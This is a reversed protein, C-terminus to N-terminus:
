NRLPKGTELTHKIRAQTLPNKLLGMFHRREIDLIWQEDVLSGGEVYGGCLTEALALGVAFDHASIFGGDRMNVLQSEITAIGSAGLVPFGRTKLPPRYGSDYMARANRKALWLVEHTNLAVVDGVRLFGLTRAEEASKSVTATAVTQFHAKLFDLIYANDGAQQAARLALEKCGGGAPLLGVGVEVLGIYSELAAVARASHLTFEAGGGLAMGRVAAITPVRAYKLAMAARQFKAVVQEILDFRGQMLAPALSALDAGFSFPEDPQWIVLGKFREEATAVAQLVGDLVAESVTHMKTKFSLIAVDDGGPENTDVWLRVADNELLATGTGAPREGLVQPPFLQRGYVALSSRPIWANRAASYSGQAAHVGSRGPDAAWAPLPAKALARGNRIDEDIWGAVQQWGAAQWTEFPGLSWGFGWRLALDADRANEAVTELHFACYHFLDRHIAWLFQAHPDADARLAAFREGPAKIKLIEKVRASAAGTAPVYDQKAVDLVLIDKGPKTYVGARTKQGLAGRQILASLWAPSKFYAHWPDDPLTDAMTRIVHAMIDLGVVDATRFTASKARGLRTGTLDDVVDFGLGLKDANAMTALMSFIGYRNAIFNPTDKARIVGKGATSSLFAELNDLMQPDTAPTAVLEVLYMYRPPNFFHVGCFQRRLASPLSDSLAGISLGSTNSAIVASEHLFPGIRRYLDLKLDMREAIAEIVLDCSKLEELDDDYNCARIQIVERADALPAPSLKALGDIAKRVLGDKPGDKAALDFLVVPVRANILHAAIQAGMVGAGLVAAKRVIFNAV